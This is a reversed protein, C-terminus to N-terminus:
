GLHLSLVGARPGRRGGRGGWGFYSRDAGRPTGLPALAARGGGGVGTGFHGQGASGRSRVGLGPRARGQGGPPDQADRVGEHTASAEDLRCGGSACVPPARPGSASPAALPTTQVSPRPRPPRPKCSDPAPAREPRATATYRQTAPLHPSGPHEEHVEPQTILSLFVLSTTLTIHSCQSSPM